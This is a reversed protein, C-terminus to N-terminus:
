GARAARGRGGSGGGPRPLGPGPAWSVRGRRHEGVSVALDAAAVLAGADGSAHALAPNRQLLAVDFREIQEVLDGGIGLIAEGEEEFAAVHDDDVVVGHHVCARAERIEELGLPLPAQHAHPKVGLPEAVHRALEVQEGLVPDGPLFAPARGEVELLEVAVVRDRRAADGIELDAVAFRSAALMFFRRRHTASAAASDGRAAFACVNGERGTRNITGKGGPPAVSMMPRRTAAFICSTHPWGTTTSFLGPAPVTTPVSYTALDAGSPWVRPM